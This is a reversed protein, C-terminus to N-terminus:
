NVVQIGSESIEIMSVENKKLVMVSGKFRILIVDDTVVPINVTQVVQPIKVKPAAKAGDPHTLWNRMARVSRITTDLEAALKKDFKTPTNLIIKGEEKTFDLDQKM